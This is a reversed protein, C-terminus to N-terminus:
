NFGYNYAVRADSRSVIAYFINYEDLELSFIWNKAIDEGNPPKPDSATVLRVITREDNIFRDLRKQAYKKSAYVEMLLSLLSDDSDSNNSFSIIAARFAEYFPVPSPYASEQKDIENDTVELKAASLFGALFVLFVLCAGSRKNVM